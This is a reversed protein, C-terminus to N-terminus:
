DKKKLKKRIELILNLATLLLVIVSLIPAVYSLVEALSLGVAAKVTGSHEQVLAAIM